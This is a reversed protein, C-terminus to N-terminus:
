KAELKKKADAPIDMKTTGVDTIEVTRTIDMERENDGFTFTGHLHTEYKVLASDKLWFKVTGQANKPPPPGFGSNDGGATRRPGFSMMDTAGDSTFDGGMAGAELAKLERVDKLAFEAEQAANGNRALNAAFLSGMDGGGGGFVQWGDEAKYAFKENKMVVETANGNFEQSMKAYGGKESQGKLPGIDFQGDGLKLTATWSFNSASKLRAIADAVQNTPGSDAASASAIALALVLTISISNLKM